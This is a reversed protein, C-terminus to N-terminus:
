IRLRRISSLRERTLLPPPRTALWNEAGRVVSLRPAAAAIAADSHPSLSRALPHGQVVDDVENAVSGFDCCTAKFAPTESQGTPCCDDMLGFAYSAHGSMLCTMRSFSIGSTGWLLVVAMLATTWRRTSKRQM